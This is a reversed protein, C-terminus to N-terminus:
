SGEGVLAHQWTATQRKEEICNRVIRQTVKVTPSIRRCLAERVILLGGGCLPNAVMAARHLAAAAPHAVTVTLRASLATLLPVGVAPPAATVSTRGTDSRLPM